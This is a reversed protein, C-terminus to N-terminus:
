SPASFNRLFRIKLGDLDDEMRMGSWPGAWLRDNFGVGVEYQGVRTAWDLETLCNVSDHCSWETFCRRTLLRDRVDHMLYNTVLAVHTRSSRIHDEIASLMGDRAAQVHPALPSVTGFIDVARSNPLIAIKVM